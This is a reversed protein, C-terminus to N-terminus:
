RTRRELLPVTKVRAEVEAKGDSLKIETGPVAFERDIYCMGIAKKLSPSFAGSTVEGAEKGGVYVKFGHRASRRGESIFGTLVREFGKKSRELLAQKGTFDKETYVFRALNAELPTHEEDIDSGYLSYGMELRLTDRAGLGIPKVSEDAMLVDWMKVAREKPFFLEYGQEGTYGTRSLLANVGLIDVKLFSFRKMGKITEEGVLKSMVRPALPGQIDLKAINDSDDLFSVERSLRKEIWEKDKERTGANVVLMFETDSLKFVILDDIVGGKDNLLFGYRCKGVTMDDIRCTVLEDVAQRAREGKIFFEGMHCIDFLGAKERTHIHEDIIGTYQVPMQWGSFSVMRAGAELHKEYLPTRKL